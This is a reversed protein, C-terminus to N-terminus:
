RGRQHRHFKHYLQVLGDLAAEVETSAIRCGESVEPDPAGSTARAAETAQESAARLKGMVQALATMADDDNDVGLARAWTDLESGKGYRTRTAM